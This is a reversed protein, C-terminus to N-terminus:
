PEIVAEQGLKTGLARMVTQMTSSMDGMAAFYRFVPVKIEGDEIIRLRTHTGGGITEASLEWTWTGGFPLADDAIRTVMRRPAELVEIEYPMGWEDERIDKWVAHGNRDPLREVSKLGPVWGARGPYDAIVGWVQEPPVAFRVSRTARHGRPLLLGIVYIAVVAAVLAVVVPAAILLWKM